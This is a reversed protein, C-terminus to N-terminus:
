APSPVPINGCESIRPADASLAVMWIMPAPMAPV